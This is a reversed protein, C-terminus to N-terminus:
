KYIFVDLIKTEDIREIEYDSLTGKMHIVLLDHAANVSCANVLMYASTKKESGSKEDLTIFNLKCKYWKDAQCSANKNMGLIKQSEGDVKSMAEFEDYVIEAYNTRKIAQVKFEGSIFPSIKEIIREEAETFSLADLLYPETINKLLGNEMMKEYKLSCEFYNNM